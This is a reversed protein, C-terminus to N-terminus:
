SEADLLNGSILIKKKNISYIEEQEQIEQISINCCIGLIQNKSKLCDLMYVSLLVSLVFCLSMVRVLVNIEHLMAGVCVVGCM